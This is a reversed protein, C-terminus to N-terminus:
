CSCEPPPAEVAYHHSVGTENLIMFTPAGMQIRAVHIERQDSLVKDGNPILTRHKCLHIQGDNYYNDNTEFCAAIAKILEEENNDHYVAVIITDNVLTYSGADYLEGKYWIESTNNFENKPIHINQLDEHEALYSNASLKAAWM